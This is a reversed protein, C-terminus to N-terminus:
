IDTTDSEINVVHSLRSARLGSRRGVHALRALGWLTKLREVSGCGSGCIMSCGSM